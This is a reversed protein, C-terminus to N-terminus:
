HNQVVVRFRQEIEQAPSENTTVKHNIWYSDGTTATTALLRVQTSRNGTQISENDKTLITAGQQRIVTITWVQSSIEANTPLVPDWDFEILRKDSPDFMIVGGAQITLPTSM